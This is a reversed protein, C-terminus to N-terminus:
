TPRPAAQRTPSAANPDGLRPASGRVAMPHAAAEAAAPRATAAAGTSAGAHRSRRSAVTVAARAWTRRVRGGRQVRKPRSTATRAAEPTNNQSAPRPPWWITVGGARPGLLEP